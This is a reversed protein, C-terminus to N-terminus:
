RLGKTPRASYRRVLRALGASLLLSARTLHILRVIARVVTRRATPSEARNAAIVDPFWAFSDTPTRALTTFDVHVVGFRQSYGESWEFNDLLSWLFYGRM